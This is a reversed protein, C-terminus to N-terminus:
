TYGLSETFSRPLNLMSLPLPDKIHAIDVVGMKLIQLRLHWRGVLRERRAEILEELKLRNGELEALKEKTQLDHDEDLSKSYEEVDKEQQRRLDLKEREQNRIMTQLERDHKKGLRELANLEEEFRRKHEPTIDDGLLSLRKNLHKLATANRIASDEMVLRLREIEAMEREVHKTELKEIAATHQLLSNAFYNRLM